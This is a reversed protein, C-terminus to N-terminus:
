APVVVLSLRSESAKSEWTHLSRDVSPHRTFLRLECVSHCDRLAILFPFKSTQPLKSPSLYVRKVFRHVKKLDVERGHLSFMTEKGLEKKRQLM